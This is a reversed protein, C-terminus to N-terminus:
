GPAFFMKIKEGDDLGVLEGLEQSTCSNMVLFSHVHQWPPSTTLLSQIDRHKTYMTEVILLWNENKCKIYEVRWLDVSQERIQVVLGFHQLLKLNLLPCCEIVLVNVLDCSLRLNRRETWHHDIPPLLPLPLHILLFFSTMSFNSELSSSCRRLLLVLFTACSTTPQRMGPLPLPM